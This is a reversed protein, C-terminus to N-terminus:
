AHRDRCADSPRNVPNARGHDGEDLGREVTQHDTAGIPKKREAERQDEADHAPEIQAIAGRDHDAGIEARQEVDLEARRGIEHRDDRDCARHHGADIDLPKAKSREADARADGRHNRTERDPHLELLRAQQHQRTVAVRERRQGAAFEPRQSREHHTGVVEDHEGRHQRDRSSEMQQEIAAPEAEPQARDDLVADSCTKGPDIDLARHELGKRQRRRDAADGAKEHQRGILLDRRHEPHPRRQLPQDGHHDAPEARDGPRNDAAENEADDLGM